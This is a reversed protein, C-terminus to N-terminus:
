TSRETGDEGHRQQPLCEEEEACTESLERAQETLEEEQFVPFVLCPEELEGLNLLHKIVLWIM